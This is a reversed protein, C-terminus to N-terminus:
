GAIIVGSFGLATAIQASLIILQLGLLNWIAAASISAMGAIFGYEIATAGDENQVLRALLEGAM